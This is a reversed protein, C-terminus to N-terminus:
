RARAFSAPARRLPSQAARAYRGHPSNPRWQPLPRQAQGDLSALEARMAQTEHQLVEIERMRSGNVADLQSLLETVSAGPDPVPAPKAPPNERARREDEEAELIALSRQAERAYEPPLLAAPRGPLVVPLDELAEATAVSPQTVGQRNTVIPELIGRLYQRLQEPDFADVAPAAARKATRAEREEAEAMRRRAMLQAARLAEGSAGRSPSMAREEAAILPRARAGTVEGLLQGHARRLAPDTVAAEQGPAAYVGSGMDVLASASVALDRDVGIPSFDLVGSRRYDNVWSGSGSRRALPSLAAM